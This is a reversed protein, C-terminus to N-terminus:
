LGSFNMFIFVKCTAFYQNRIFTSRSFLSLSSIKKSFSEFYLSFRNFIRSPIFFFSQLYFIFLRKVFKLPLDACLILWDNIKLHNKLSIVLGHVWRWGTGDVEEWSWGAGDVEAWSMEAEDINSGFYRVNNPLKGLNLGFFEFNDMKVSCQCM